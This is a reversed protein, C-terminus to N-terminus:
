GGAIIITHIILCVYMVGRQIYEDGGESAGGDDDIYRRIRHCLSSVSCFFFPFLARRQAGDMMQM